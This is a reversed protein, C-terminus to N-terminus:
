LGLEKDTWGAIGFKEPIRASKMPETNIFKNFANVFLKRRFDIHSPNQKVCDKYFWDRFFVAADDKYTRQGDKLVNLFEDAADGMNLHHGIYHVAGLWSGVKKMSQLAATVSEELKPHADLVTDMEKPSLAHRKLQGNALQAMFTLNAAVINCNKYGRIALRDGYTRKKGGDITDKAAPPLGTVLVTQFPKGARVGAMCRHQGNILNGNWDICITEGNLQWQEAEIDRTYQAVIRKDVRRNEPNRGLLEKCFDPTM